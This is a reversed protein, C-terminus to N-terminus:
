DGEPMNTRRKKPTEFLKSASRKESFTGDGVRGKRDNCGDKRRLLKGFRRGEGRGFNKELVPPMRSETTVKTEGEAKSPRLLKTHTKEGSKKQSRL